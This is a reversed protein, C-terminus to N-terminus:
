ELIYSDFKLSDTAVLSEIRKGSSREVEVRVDSMIGLPFCSVNLVRFSRVAGYLRRRRDMEQIIDQTCLQDLCAFHESQELLYVQVARASAQRGSQYSNAWLAGLCFGFFILAFVLLIQPMRPYRNILLRPLKNENERNSTTRNVM